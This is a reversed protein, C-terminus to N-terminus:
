GVRAQTIAEFLPIGRRNCYQLVKSRPLHKISEDTDQDPPFGYWRVGFDLEGDRTYGHDPIHDVVFEQPISPVSPTKSASANAAKQRTLSGQQNINELHSNDGDPTQPLDSRDSTTGSQKTTRAAEGGPREERGERLRSPPLPGTNAIESVPNDTTDNDSAPNTQNDDAPHPDRPISFQVKKTLATAETAPNAYGPAPITLDGVDDNAPSVASGEMESYNEFAPLRNIVGETPPPPLDDLQLAPSAHMAPIPTAQQSTKRTTSRTGCGQVTDPSNRAGRPPPAM